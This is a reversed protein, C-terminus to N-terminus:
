DGFAARIVPIAVNVVTLVSVNMITGPEALAQRPGSGPRKVM